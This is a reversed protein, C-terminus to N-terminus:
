ALHFLIITAQGLPSDGAAVTGSPGHPPSGADEHPPGPLIQLVLPVYRVKVPLLLVISGLLETTYGELLQILLHQLQASAPQRVEPLSSPAMPGHLYGNNLTM